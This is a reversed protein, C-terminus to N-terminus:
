DNWEDRLRSVYAQADEGAWLDKGLGELSALHRPPAAHASLVLSNVASEPGAVGWLRVATSVVSESFVYDYPANLQKATKM